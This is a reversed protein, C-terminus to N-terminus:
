RATRASAGQTPSRESWSSAAAEEAPLLCWVTKRDESVGWVGDLESVTMLVLLLGRGHEADENIERRSYTGVVNSGVAVYLLGDQNQLTFTAETGWSHTVVNTVLESVILSVPFAMSSLRHFSLFARAIRRM